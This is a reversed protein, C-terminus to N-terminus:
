CPTKEESMIRNSPLYKRIGALLTRQIERYTSLVPQVRTRSLMQQRLDFKMSFCLRVEIISLDAIAKAYTSSKTPGKREGFATPERLMIHIQGKREGFATPERLM